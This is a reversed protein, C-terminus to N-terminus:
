VCVSTMSMCSSSHLDLSFLDLLAGPQHGDPHGAHCRRAAGASLSRETAASASVAEYYASELWLAQEPSLNDSTTLVEQAAFAAAVAPYAYGDASSVTFVSHASDYSEGNITTNLYSYDASSAAFTAAQTAAPTSLASLVVGAATSLTAAASLRAWAHELIARYQAQLFTIANRTQKM